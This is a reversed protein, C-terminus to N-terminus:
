SKNKAKPKKAEQSRLKKAKQSRPKKAEQSNPKKKKAERSRPKQDKRSKAKRMRQMGLEEEAPPTKAKAAKRQNIRSKAAKAKRIRRAKLLPTSTKRGCLLLLMLLLLAAAVICCCSTRYSLRTSVSDMPLSTQAIVACRRACCPAKKLAVGLVLQFSQSRRLSWSTKENVEIVHSAKKRAPHPAADAWKGRGLVAKRIRRGKM